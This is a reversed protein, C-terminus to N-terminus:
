KSYQRAERIMEQGSDAASWLALFKRYATSSNITDGSAQYARAVGIQALVFLVPNSLTTAGRHELMAQFDVIAAQPQNSKLHIMGRLYPTLSILDYQKATQLTKLAGNSDNSKWQIAALLDPYLFGKAAFSQPYNKQIEGLNTRAADLQGCIASSMGSDFLTDAAQPYSDAERVLSLATSCDGIFARDLAANALAEGAASALEPNVGAQAALGRWVELGGTLLGGADLVAAQYQLPTVHGTDTSIDVGVQGNDRSGLYNILIRLGPHSRGSKQIQAEIQAAGDTQKLALMANEAAASAELDYPNQQLVQQAIELSENFKGELRLVIAMQVSAETDAPYAEHLKQLLVAAQPYDGTGNMAYSAQGALQMRRSSTNATDQAKLSAQEAAIEARQRRYLDALQLWAQPFHADAITAREFAHMADLLHGAGLLNEGTVYAQLADLNSTAEKSLPNAKALAEGSEGLGSRVESALRDIADPMQERTAATESADITKAGTAADYMRLSVVYSSAGDNRVDGFLVHGAGIAQAAQQANPMTPENSVPLGLAQLGAAFTPLDRVSLDASQELDFKLGSMVVGTLIDDGTHNTFSAMALASTPPAAPASHKPWFLWAATGAVCLVIAGIIVNHYGRSGPQQRDKSPRVVPPLEEFDDERQHFPSPSTRQSSRARVAGISFSSSSSPSAASYTASSSPSAASYSASSSSEVVPGTPEAGSSQAMAPSSSKGAAPGSSAATAPYPDSAPKSSTVQPDSSVIRKVPRLVSEGMPARSPPVPSASPLPTQSREGEQVRPRQSSSIQKPLPPRVLPVDTRSRVLSPIAGWISKGASGGRIPIKHLTEVLEAASQFRNHRDKELLRLIIRELDKPIAANIERPPDPPQSLLQVFVLASTAGRFPLQGTAMEYLVIGLSFLDSRADLPEGRAQEPSMYSATGVTSGASTLDYRVDFEEGLDVKALGFDLVKTGFRGGSKDVLMINAPKIDRHIVGRSHAVILADAVETGVRTIDDASITGSAIRARLTEGKLLEMVLYPDGNQEGIDFITCINPHNLGSAARAEQLFRQRMDFTSYEDRLLKIAVDRQLRADWASFVLGMGGSGLRGLIEYPGIRQGVRPVM